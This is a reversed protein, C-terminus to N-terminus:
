GSFETATRNALCDSLALDKGDCAKADNVIIRSYRECGGGPVGFQRVRSRGTGVEKLDLVTVRDVMGNRDFFAFEYAVRSLDTGLRNAVVLTMRCSNEASQLANLEVELARGGDQAGAPSVLAVCLAAARAMSRVSIM